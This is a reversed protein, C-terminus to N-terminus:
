RRASERLKNIAKSSGDLSFRFYVSGQGYIKIEILCTNYKGIKSIVSSDTVFHLFKSGYDHTMQVEEIKDDWKIRTKILEYAAMAKADELNPDSTLGIYVWENNGDTGIGLWSQLDNYPFDLKRTPKIEDSSLYWTAVNTMEDVSSSTNWGAMATNMSLVIVVVVSFVFRDISM